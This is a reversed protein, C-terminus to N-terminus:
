IKWIRFYRNSSFNSKKGLLNLIIKSSWFSFSITSITNDITKTKRRKEEINTAVAVTLFDYV